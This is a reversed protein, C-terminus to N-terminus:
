SSSITLGLFLALFVWLANLIWMIFASVTRYTLFVKCLLCNVSSSLAGRSIALIGSVSLCYRELLVFSFPFLSLSFFFAKPFSILPKNTRLDTPGLPVVVFRLPFHSARTCVSSTDSAAFWFSSPQQTTPFHIVSIGTPSTTLTIMPFSIHQPLWVYPRPEKPSSPGWKYSRGWLLINYVSCPPFSGSAQCTSLLDSARHPNSTDM